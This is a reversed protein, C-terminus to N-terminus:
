SKLADTEDNVLLSGRGRKEIKDWRSQWFLHGGIYGAGLVDVLLCVFCWRYSGPSINRELKVCWCVGGSFKRTNVLATM